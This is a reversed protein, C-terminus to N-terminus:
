SRRWGGFTVWNKEAIVPEIFCEWGAFLDILKQADRGRWQRKTLHLEAIVAKVTEPIGGGNLLLDYEGGECDLKLAQYPRAAMLKRWGYARVRVKEGGTVYLSNMAPARKVYLDVHHMFPNSVAAGYLCEYRGRGANRKLNEELLKYNRPDPEVATVFSAGLQCALVSYAGIHGGIDLVSKGRVDMKAYAAVESIVSRDHPTEKRIVFTAEGGGAREYSYPYELTRM